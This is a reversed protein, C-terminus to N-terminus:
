GPATPEIDYLRAQLCANLLDLMQGEVQSVVRWVAPSQLWGPRHIFGEGVKELAGDEVLHNLKRRVTEKPLGTEEAVRKLSCGRQADGLVLSLSTISERLRDEEILHDIVRLGVLDYITIMELDNRHFPGRLRYMRVYFDAFIRTLIRWREPDDKHRLRFTSILAPPPDADTPANVPGLLFEQNDLFGNAMALIAQDLEAIAGKYPETQLVGPTLIFGKGEAETLYGHDILRHVKRRVTERALGTAATISVLTCGDPAGAPIAGYHIGHSHLGVVDGILAMEIDDRYLPARLRYMQLCFQIYRRGMTRWRDAGPPARFSYTKADVRRSGAAASSGLM